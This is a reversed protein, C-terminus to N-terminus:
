ANLGGSTGGLGTNLPMRLQSTGQRMALRERQRRKREPRVGVEETERLSVPAAAVQQVPAVPAVAPAPDPPPTPRPVKVEINQSPRRGCM